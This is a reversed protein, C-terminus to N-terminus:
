PFFRKLQPFNNFSHAPIKQNRGKIKIYERTELHLASTQQQENLQTKFLTELYGKMEGFKRIDM